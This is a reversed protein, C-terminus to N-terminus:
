KRSSQHTREWEKWTEKKGNLCDHYYDLIISSMEDPHTIGRRLFYTQLRSGGWLGWNNRIWMGLGMHYKGLVEDKTFGKFESQDIESLLRNLEPFSEGLNKPIYVGNIKEAVLRKKRAEEYEKREQSKERRAITADSNRFYLFEDQLFWKEFTSPLAEVNFKTSNFFNLIKKDANEIESKFESVEFEGNRLIYGSIVVRYVKFEDESYSSATMGLIEALETQANEGSKLEPFEYAFDTVDFHKIETRVHKAQRRLVEYVQDLDKKGEYVVRTLDFQHVQKKSDIVYVSNGDSTIAFENLFKERESAESGLDKRFYVVECREKRLDCGTIEATTFGRVLKGKRYISISKLEKSEDDASWTILFFISLGDNSLILNNSKKHVGDFGRDVTYIPEAKGKKFVRTVGRTSPSENDFPVSTLFYQGNESYVTVVGVSSSISQGIAFSSFLVLITPILIQLTLRCHM